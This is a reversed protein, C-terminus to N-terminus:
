GQCDSRRGVDVVGRVETVLDVVYDPSLLGAPYERGRRVWAAKMGFRKAGDIDAVPNDGVFMVQEPRTLGTAELADQFIRPDPKAYGAEESVIIFPALEDLGAARCKRRQSRPGNTVIGWPVQRENLYALYENVRLDPHVQRETEARYWETLSDLRLGTDPWEDLIRRFVEAKSAYGDGDWEVMKEVADDRSLRTSGCLREEYFSKAVRRFLAQRDLLTNDLDFILGEVATKM